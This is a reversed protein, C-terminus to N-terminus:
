LKNDGFILQSDAPLVTVSDQVVNSYEASLEQYKTALFETFRTHTGIFEYTVSGITDKPSKRVQFVIKYHFKEKGIITLTM